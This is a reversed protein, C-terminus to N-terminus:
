KVAAGFIERVRAAFGDFGLRSVREKGAEVMKARFPQDSYLKYMLEAIEPHKKHSVLIGGAGVTDPVASSSFAIVPLGFHMAEVLPLCFGEHESMCVYVSAAQYLAKLESDDMCGAFNVADNLALDDVMRKLGFAYLETDIDIGAIWLRSRKEIKHHLFYFAKIIDEICKNPALRGVHVVQVGGEGRVLADIGANKEIEWRSFDVPLELVQSSFGLKQLESANFGSDSILRHSADCLNPLEKVGAEIDAVIRPNVGEFWSASTLNHFIL